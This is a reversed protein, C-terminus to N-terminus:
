EMTSAQIISQKNVTTLQYDILESNLSYVFALDQTMINLSSFKRIVWKSNYISYFTKNQYQRLFGILRIEVFNM